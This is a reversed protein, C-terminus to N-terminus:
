KTKGTKDMKATYQAPVEGIMVDPGCTLTIPIFVPSNKFDGNVVGFPALDDSFDGNKFSFQLRATQRAVVGKKKKLKISVSDKGFKAKGKDDLVFKEVFRGTSFSAQQGAPNWNDPIEVMANLKITDTGSTRFNLKAQLSVNELKYLDTPPFADGMPNWTYGKDTSRSARIRQEEFDQREHVGVQYLGVFEGNGIGVVAPASAGQVPSLSQGATWTTQLDSTHYTSLDPNVYVWNGYDDVALAAPPKYTPLLEGATNWSNGGDISTFILVKDENESVVCFKDGLTAHNISDPISYYASPDFTARSLYLQKRSWTDGFDTSTEAQITFDTYEGNYYGYV